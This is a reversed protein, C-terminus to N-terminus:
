LDAAADILATLLASDFPSDSPPLPVHGPEPRSGLDVSQATTGNAVVVSAGSDTEAMPVFAFAIEDRLGAADHFLELARGAGDALGVTASQAAEDVALYHMEIAGGSGLVVQFSITAAGDYRRMDAFRIM